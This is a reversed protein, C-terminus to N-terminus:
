SPGRTGWYEEHAEVMGPKSEKPQVKQGELGMNPLGHAKLHRSYIWQVGSYIGSYLGRSSQFRWLKHDAVGISEM